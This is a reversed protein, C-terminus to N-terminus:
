EGQIPKLVRTVFSVNHERLSPCATDKAFSWPSRFGSKSGQGRDIVYGVREAIVENTTLDFIQMKGGAIWFNRDEPTSIDQWNVGYRSVAGALPTQSLDKGVGAKTYRSYSSTGPEISDVYHYLRAHSPRWRSPEFEVMREDILLAGICSLGSCNHGYPDNKTFQDDLPLSPRWTMWVIGEVNEVTRYIKEGATKCREDFRAMAVNLKQQAKYRPWAETAPLFGFAVVTLGVWFAKDKGRKPKFLALLLAGLALAWYIFGMGTLVVGFPTLDLPTGTNM